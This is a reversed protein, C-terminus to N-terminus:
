KQQFIDRRQHVTKTITDMVWSPEDHESLKGKEKEQDDEYEGDEGSNSSAVDSLSIGIAVLMEAFTKEPEISMLEAIEAHTMDDQEQQVAAEADEVRKRAV